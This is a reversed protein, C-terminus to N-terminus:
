IVEVNIFLLGNMFGTKLRYKHIAFLKCIYCDGDSNVSVALSALRAAHRLGSAAGSLGPWGWLSGGFALPLGVQSGEPLPQTLLSLRLPPGRNVKCV